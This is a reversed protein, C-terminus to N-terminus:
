KLRLPYKGYKRAEDVMVYINEVRVNAHLSNSSALIFGGGQAASEICRRVDRRVDEEGGFPLVYKCDVNGILCVRSGYKEKVDKLDMVGPEIPHLAHIGTNIIDDLIPYLNGDSHKLVPIGYSKGINVIDKLNPLEYERFLKPNILPGRSDAYDDTVFLADIGAEAMLKAFGRCAEVIKEMLKKAFYPNRYLDISIKDIGGRVQFAMHWGSHCQAIVAIDRDKIRRMIRDVMEVVDPHFPDPPEYSELDGPSNIIGGVFYTTKAEKSTQMIRGWHDVYRKSDLYKPRYDRTTLSYDSLAPVADFDLKECAEVLALRYNLSNEWSDSGGAMTLVTGSVKRRLVTDVIPPDLALDTIPVLDPEELELAKFFRERHNM